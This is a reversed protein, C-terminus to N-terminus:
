RHPCPIDSPLTGRLFPSCIYSEFDIQLTQHMRKVQTVLVFNPVRDAFFVFLFFSPHAGGTGGRFRSKTDNQWLVNIHHATLLHELM